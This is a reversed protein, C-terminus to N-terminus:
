WERIDKSLTVGRMCGWLSWWVLRCCIFSKKLHRWRRKRVSGLMNAFLSRAFMGPRQKLLAFTQAADAKLRSREVEGQWVTYAQCYFVDMLEKLNEFGPKRAYEALRLARIMRVWMERKSHMMECSKEPTM